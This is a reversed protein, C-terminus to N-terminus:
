IILCVTSHLLVKQYLLSHNNSKKSQRFDTKVFPLSAIRSLTGSILLSQRNFKKHGFYDLIHHHSNSQKCCLPSNHCHNHGEPNQAISQHGNGRFGLVDSDIILELSGDEHCCIKLHGSAISLSNLFLLMLVLISALLRKPLKATTATYELNQM